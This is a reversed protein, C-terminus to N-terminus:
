GFSGAWRNGPEDEPWSHPATYPGWEYCGIGTRKREDIAEQKTVGCLMCRGERRRAAKVAALRKSWGVDPSVYVKEDQRKLFEMLEKRAQWTTRPQELDVDPAVELVETVVVPQELLEVLRTLSRNMTELEGYIGWMMAHERENFMTM